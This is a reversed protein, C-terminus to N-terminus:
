DGAQLPQPNNKRISVCACARGGEIAFPTIPQRSVSPM